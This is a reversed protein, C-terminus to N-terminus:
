QFTRTKLKESIPFVTKKEASFTSPFFMNVQDKQAKWSIGPSPLYPKEHLAFQHFYKVPLCFIAAPDKENKMLRKKM